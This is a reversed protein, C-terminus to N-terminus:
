NLPAIKELALYEQWIDLKLRQLDPATRTKMVTGSKDRFYISAVDGNPDIGWLGHVVRHREQKLTKIRGVIARIEEVQASPLKGHALKKLRDLQRDIDERVTLLANDPRRPDIKSIVREVM